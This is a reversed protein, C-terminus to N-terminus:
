PEIVLIERLRRPPRSLKAPLLSANMRGGWPTDDVQPRPVIVLDRLPVNVLEVISIEQAKRLIRVNM